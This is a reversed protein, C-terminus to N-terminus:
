QKEDELSVYVNFSFEGGAPAPGAREEFECREVNPIATPESKLVVVRREGSADNPLRQVPGYRFVPAPVGRVQLISELRLIRKALTKSM